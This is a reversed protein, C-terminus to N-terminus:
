RSIASKEMRCTAKSSPKILPTSNSTPPGNAPGPPSPQIRHGDCQLLMNQLTIMGDGGNDLDPIWDHAPKWFWRFRQDGYNTFEAMAAKQAVDTLGLMAVQPGDQGWCTSEPSRRAAFTDVALQLDPKGVGYLRYPFAVYLEPNESNGPKGYQEAPLITLRGDPDGQGLPSLKGKATKGLPLPPLEGLLKQWARRQTETTLDVPLALLRPLVDMLGALDPTPNVAVLQYTELSQAPVLTIKGAANRPYHQDYFTIIAGAFPVLQTRAFGAEQTQDYVDLMQAIM